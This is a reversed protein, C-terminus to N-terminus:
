AEVIDGVAPVGLVDKSYPLVKGECQEASVEHWCGDISAVAEAAQGCAVSIQKAVEDCSGFQGDEAELLGHGMM